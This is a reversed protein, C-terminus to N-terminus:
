PCGNENRVSVRLVLYLRTYWPKGERESLVQKKQQLKDLLIRRNEKLRQLKQDKDEVFCRTEIAIEMGYTIAVSQTLKKLKKHGSWTKLHIELCEEPSMEIKVEGLTDSKECAVLPSHDKIRGVEENAKDKSGRRKREVNAPNGKMNQTGKLDKNDQADVKATQAKWSMVSIIETSNNDGGQSWTHDEDENWDSEWDEEPINQTLSRSSVICESEEGLECHMVEESNRECTNAPKKLSQNLPIWRLESAIQDAGVEDTQNVKETSGRHKGQSGDLQGVTEYSEQHRKLTCLIIRRELRQQKTLLLKRRAQEKLRRTEKHPDNHEELEITKENVFTTALARTIKKQKWNWYFTQLRYTLVNQPVLNICVGMWAGEKRMEWSEVSM